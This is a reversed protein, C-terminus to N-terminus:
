RKEVKRGFYKCWMQPNIKGAVIACAGKRYHECIGCHARPLGHSYNAAEKSIKAM